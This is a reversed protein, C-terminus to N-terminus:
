NNNEYIGYVNVFPRYRYLRATEDFGKLLRYQKLNIGADAGLDRAIVAVLPQGEGEPRYYEPNRYEWTFRLPSRALKDGELRPEYDYRFAINKNTYIDLLPVSVAPNVVSRQPLAFVRVDEGELTNLYRGAYMLNSIANTRLFPVYAFASIVVSVTAALYVVFRRLRADKLERLAYSAMLGIMPFVPLLYRSRRVGMVVLLAVLWAIAPYKLDKKGAAAFVSYIAAVTVFPHVQFLFTSKFSETWKSLGPKQYEFLLGIQGSVVEFKYIFFALPIIMGVAVVALARKTVSLRSGCGAQVIGCVFIVALVSLMLWMSYKSLVTATLALASLAIMPVGGERLVRHFAYILLTLFFMSPVDVMMLPVQTYLYPMAMMLAGAAFGTEEGWLDRGLLYTFLVTSSFMLTTLAQIFARTEGFVKFVLGYLFPVLPLDTWEMIQGGWERLFYGVGYLELHKAQTFYRSADVLVEPERWFLCGVAFSVGFLILPRPLSVGSLVYSLLVAALLMPALSLPEISAFVMEWSTLRNDDIYRFNYLFFFVLLALLAVLLLNINKDKTNDSL